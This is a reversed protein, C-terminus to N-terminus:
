EEQSAQVPAAIVQTKWQSHKATPDPTVARVTENEIHFPLASM